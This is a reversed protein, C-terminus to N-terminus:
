IQELRQPNGVNGWILFPFTGRRILQALPAITDDKGKGAGIPLAAIKTARKTEPLSSHVLILVLPDQDLMIFLHFFLVALVGSLILYASPALCVSVAKEIGRDHCLMFM